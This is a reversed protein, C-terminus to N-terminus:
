QWRCVGNQSRWAPYVVDNSSLFPNDCFDDCVEYVGRVRHERFTGYSEFHQPDLDFYLNPETQNPWNWTDTTYPASPNPPIGVAMPEPSFSCLRFTEPDEADEPESLTIYDNGDFETSRLPFNFRVTSEISPLFNDNELAAWPTTRNWPLSLNVTNSGIAWTFIQPDRDPSNELILTALDDFAPESFESDLNNLYVVLLTSHEEITAAEQDAEVLIDSVPYRANSDQACGSFEPGNIEGPRYIGLDRYLTDREDLEDFITDRIADVARNCRESSVIELDVLFAVLTPHKTEPIKVDVEDAYLMPARILPRRIQMGQGDQRDPRVAFCPAFDIWGHPLDVRDELTGWELPPTSPCSSQGAPVGDTLAWEFTRRLPIEEDAFWDELRAMATVNNDVALPDIAFTEEVEHLIARSSEFIGHRSDITRVPVDATQGSWQGHLQYQVCYRDPECLYPEHPFPAEDLDIPQYRGDILLEFDVRNLQASDKLRWVIFTLNEQESFVVDVDRPAHPSLEFEAFSCSLPGSVLVLATIVILLAGGSSPRYPEVCRYHILNM